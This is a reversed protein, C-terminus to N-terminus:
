PIVHLNDWVFLTLGGVWIVDSISGFSMIWLASTRHESFNRFDEGLQHTEMIYWPLIMRLIDGKVNVETFVLVDELFQHNFIVDKLM